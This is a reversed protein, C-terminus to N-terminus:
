FENKKTPNVNDRQDSVNNICAEVRLSALFHYLKLFIYMNICMRCLVASNWDCSNWNKRKDRAFINKKKFLSGNSDAVLMWNAVANWNPQQHFNNENLSSLKMSKEYFSWFFQCKQTSMKRRRRIRKGDHIKYQIWIVTKAESLWKM